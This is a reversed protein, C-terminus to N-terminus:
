FGGAPQAQNEAIAAGIAKLLGESWSIRGSSGNPIGRFVLKLNGTDSSRLLADIMAAVTDNTEITQAYELIPLLKIQMMGSPRDAPVEAEVPADILGKMLEMSDTGVSAYIAKDATGVHVVLKEGFMKRAEDMEEPIDAEVRHLVCGNYTDADFVFTPTDPTGEIEAAFEKLLKAVEAGDNVRTGFAFRGQTEDALLVAGIDAFGDKATDLSLKVIGRVLKEVSVRDKESIDNSQELLGSMGALTQEIQTEAQEVSAESISVAAHYFMAADDRVVSAFKSPVPEQDGYAEALSSGEVASFSFDQIVEANEQDVNLGLMIEDTERVLRELQEIQMEASKRAAETTENQAVATEFGQRLQDILVQRADKPVQQMKVKAALFYANGLGAFYTSPDAPALALSDKSPALVAWSGVQKIYVTNVGIAIVLTGDDLEEAGGTQAELRQLVSKVDATPLMALPQPVGDVLWVMVGIPQNMDIGQAMSGAIMAFMGGAQPQGIMASVYNVDAMLKNLSGLTAVLVPETKTETDGAGMKPAYREQAQAVNTTGLCLTVLALMAFLPSASKRLSM